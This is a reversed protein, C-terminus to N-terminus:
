YLTGIEVQIVWPINRSRLYNMTAESYGYMEGQELGLQYNRAEVYTLGPDAIAQGNILTSGFSDYGHIQAEKIWMANNIIHNEEHDIAAMMSTADFKGDIKFANEYVEAQNRMTFGRADPSVGARPNKVYTVRNNYGRVRNAYYDVARQKEGMKYDFEMVDTHRGKEFGHNEVKDYVKQRYSDSLGYAIGSSLGGIPAGMGMGVLTSKALEKWDWGDTQGMLAKLSYNAYGAAAGSFGGEMAGGAFAAWFGSHSSLGVEGVISASVGSASVAGGALGGAAGAAAGVVASTAVYSGSCDGQGHVNCQYVATGGGIVAGM